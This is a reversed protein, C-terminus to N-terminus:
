EKSYLFWSLYIIWCIILGNKKVLLWLPEVSLWHCAGNGFECCSSEVSDASASFVRKRVYAYVRPLRVPIISKGKSFLLKKRSSIYYSALSIHSQRSFRDRSNRYYRRICIFGDRRFSIRQRNCPFVFPM